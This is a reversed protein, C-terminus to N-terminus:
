NVSIERALPGMYFGTHGVDLVSELKKVPTSSPIIRYTFIGTNNNGNLAKVKSPAPKVEDENDSGDIDLGNFDEELDEVRRQLFMFLYSVPNPMISALVSTRACM